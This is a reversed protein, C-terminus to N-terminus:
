DSRTNAGTGDSIFAHLLPAFVPKRGILCNPDRKETLRLGSNLSADAINGASTDPYPDALGDCGSRGELNIYRVIHKEAFCNEAALLAVVVEYADLQLM